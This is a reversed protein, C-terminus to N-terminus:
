GMTFCSNSGIFRFQKSHPRSNRTAYLRNESNITQFWKKSNTQAKSVSFELAIIWLSLLWKDTAPSFQVMMLMEATGNMHNATFSFWSQIFRDQDLVLQLTVSNGYFNLNNTISKSFLKENALFFPFKCWEPVYLNLFLCDESENQLYRMLRKLHNYRGTTLHQQSNNLSPLNQPCVPSLEIAM